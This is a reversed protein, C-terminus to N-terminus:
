SSEIPGSCISPNSFVYWEHIMKSAHFDCIIQMKKSELPSIVLSKSGCPLMGHSTQEKLMHFNANFSPTLLFKIYKLRKKAKSTRNGWGKERKNGEKKGEKHM